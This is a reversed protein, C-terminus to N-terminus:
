LETTKDNGHLDLCFGQTVIKYCFMKDTYTKKQEIILNKKLVPDWLPWSLPSSSTKHGLTKVGSWGAETEHIRPNCACAVRSLHLNQKRVANSQYHILEMKCM